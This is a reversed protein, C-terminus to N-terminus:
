QQDRDLRDHAAWIWLGRTDSPLCSEFSNTGGDLCHSGKTCIGHLMQLGPITLGIVPLGTMLNGSMAKDKKM